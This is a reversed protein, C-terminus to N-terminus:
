KYINHLAENIKACTHDFQGLLADPLFPRFALLEAVVSGEAAQAGQILLKQILSITIREFHPSLINQIRQGPTPSPGYLAHQMIIQATDAITIM